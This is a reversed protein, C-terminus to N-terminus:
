SVSNFSSGTKPMLQWLSLFVPIALHSILNTPLYDFIGKSASFTAEEFNNEEPHAETKNEESVDFFSGTKQIIYMASSILTGGITVLRRIGLSGIAFGGLLLIAGTKYSIGGTSVAMNPSVTIYPEVYIQHKDNENKHDITKKLVLVNRDSEVSYNDDSVIKLNKVVNEFSSNKLDCGSVAYFTKTDHMSGLSRVPM